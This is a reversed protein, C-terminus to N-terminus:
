NKLYVIVSPYRDSRNNKVFVSGTNGQKDVTLRDYLMSQIMDVILDLM